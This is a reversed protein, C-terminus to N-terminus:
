REVSQLHNHNGFTWSSKPENSFTKLNRKDKTDTWKASKTTQLIKDALTETIFSVTSGSDIM